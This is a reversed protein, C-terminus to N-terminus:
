SRKIRFIKRAKKLGAITGIDYYDADTKFLSIPLNKELLFPILNEHISYPRDGPIYELVRKNFLYTGGSRVADYKTFVTILAKEKNHQHKMKKLDVKSITDGNLVFFDEDLWWELNKLTGATGLLKKEFVFNFGHKKEHEYIQNAYYHLNITIDYSKIDFSRVHNIVHDLVPLYGIPILPKPKKKVYSGLRTGFGAALIIVKM